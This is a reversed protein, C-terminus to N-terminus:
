AAVKQTNKVCDQAREVCNEVIVRWGPELQPAVKVERGNHVIYLYRAATRVGRVHLVGRPLISPAVRDVRFVSTEM